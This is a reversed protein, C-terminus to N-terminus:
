LNVIGLGPWPSIDSWVFGNEACFEELAVKVPFRPGYRGGEPIELQTDHCALVGGPKVLWRYVNLERVTQEYLHSTDIFVVEAPALQSTIAPDLDDGVLVTWRDNRIDPGVHIDVSTLRGDTQELAALFARTSEGNFVGLEIVHQANLSLVLDYLLPLHPETM